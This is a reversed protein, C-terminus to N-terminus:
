FETFDYILAFTSKKKRKRDFVEFNNFIIQLKAAMFCMMPSSALRITRVEQTGGSVVIEEAEVCGVFAAFVEALLDKLM